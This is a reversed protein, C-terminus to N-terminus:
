EMPRLMAWDARGREHAGRPYRGRDSARVRYRSSTRPLYDNLRGCQLSSRRAQVIVGIARRAVEEVAEQGSRLGTEVM